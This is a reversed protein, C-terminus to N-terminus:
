SQPKILGLLEMPLYRGLISQFYIPWAGTEPHGGEGTGGRGPLRANPDAGEAPCIIIFGIGSNLFRHTVFGFDLEGDVQECELVDLNVALAVRGDLDFDKILRGGICYGVGWGCFRAM